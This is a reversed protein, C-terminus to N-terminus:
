LTLVCLSDQATTTYQFQASLKHIVEHCEKNVTIDQM